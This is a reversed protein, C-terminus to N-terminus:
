PVNDRNLLLTPLTIVQETLKYNETLMNENECFDQRNMFTIDHAQKKFMLINDCLPWRVYDKTTSINYKIAM